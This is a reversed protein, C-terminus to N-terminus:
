PQDSADMRTYGFAEFDIRYKEFILRETKQDSILTQWTAECADDSSNLVPVEIEGGAKFLGPVRKSIHGISDEICEVRGVYDLPIAPNRIDSRIWFSQPMLIRDMGETQFYDSQVFEEFTKLGDLPALVDLGAEKRMRRLFKYASHARAYPNRVFAFKFYRNWLAEGVVAKIENATSHKSLGYRNRFFSQMAEGM